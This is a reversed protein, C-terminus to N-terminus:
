SGWLKLLVNKIRRIQDKRLPGVIGDGTGPVRSKRMQQNETEAQSKEEECCLLKWLSYEDV